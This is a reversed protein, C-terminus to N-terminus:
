FQFEYNVNFGDGTAIPPLELQQMIDRVCDDFKAPLATGDTSTLASADILTGVDPDGTLRLDATFGGIKAGSQSVCEVVFGKVQQLADQMQALAHEPNDMKGSGSPLEPRTAASEAGSSAGGGTSGAAASGSRERRARQAAAIREAIERREDAGRPLRMVRSPPSSRPPRDADGSRLSAPAPDAARSATGGTTRKSWWWGIGIAILVTLAAALWKKMKSTRRRWGTINGAVLPDLYGVVVLFFLRM